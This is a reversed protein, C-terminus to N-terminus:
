MSACLNKKKKNTKAEAVPGNDRKCKYKMIEFITHESYCGYLCKGISLLLYM